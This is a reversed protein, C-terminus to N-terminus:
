FSRGGKSEIAHQTYCEKCQLLAIHRCQKDQEHCLAGRANYGKVEVEPIVVSTTKKKCKPCM